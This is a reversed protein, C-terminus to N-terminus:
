DKDEFADIMEIKWYHEYFWDNFADETRTTKLRVQSLGPVSHYEGDDQVYITSKLRSLCRLLANVHSTKVNIILKYITM